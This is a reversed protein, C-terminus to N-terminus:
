ERGTINIVILKDYSLTPTERREKYRFSRERKERAECILTIFIISYLDITLHHFYSITVLIIASISVEVADFVSFQLTNSFLFTNNM